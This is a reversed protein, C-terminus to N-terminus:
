KDDSAEGSEGEDRREREGVHLREVYIIASKPITMDGSVHKNDLGWHAALVLSRNTEAMKWGVSHIRVPTTQLESEDVWGGHIMPHADRWVVHLLPKSHFRKSRRAAKGRSTM